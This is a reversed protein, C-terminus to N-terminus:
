TASDAGQIARGDLKGKVVKLRSRGTELDEILYAREDGDPMLVVAHTTWHGPTFYLITGIEGDIKVREGAHFVRDSKRM